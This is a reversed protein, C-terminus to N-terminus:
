IKQSAQIEEEGEEIKTAKLHVSSGSSFIGKNWIDFWLVQFLIRKWHTCLCPSAAAVTESAWGSRGVLLSRTESGDCSPSSVLCLCIVINYTWDEAKPPRPSSPWLEMLGRSTPSTVNVSQSVRRATDRGTYMTYWMPRLLLLLVARHNIELELVVTDQSRCYEFLSPTRVSATRPSQNREENDWKQFHLNKSRALVTNAFAKNM